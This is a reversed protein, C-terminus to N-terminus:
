RSWLSAVVMLITAVDLGAILVVMMAIMVIRLFVRVEVMAIVVLM